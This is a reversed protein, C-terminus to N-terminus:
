NSFAQYIKLAFYRQDHFGYAKRKIVKIKNNIGELLSTHLPWRCHALVGDIFTQPERVLDDFLAVHIRDVDFFELFRVLGAGYRGHEILEPRRTLAEDFRTEDIMIAILKYHVELSAPKAARFHEFEVLADARRREFLERRVSMGQRHQGQLIGEVLVLQPLQSVASRPPTSPCYRPTKKM